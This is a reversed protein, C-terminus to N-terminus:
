YVLNASSTSNLRLSEELLTRAQEFDRQHIAVRALYV